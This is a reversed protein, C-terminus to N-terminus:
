GPEERVAFLQADTFNWVAFAFAVAVVAAATARPRWGAVLAVALTLEVFGASLHLPSSWTGELDSLKAFAFALLLFTTLARLLTRSRM